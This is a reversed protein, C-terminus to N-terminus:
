RRASSGIRAAHRDEEGVLRYSVAEAVHIRTVQEEGALDAITRSVRLVRHYGRGSLGFREAVSGLLDRAEDTMGSTQLLVDGPADANVRIGPQGGYRAAQIARADAVRAAVVASPEGPRADSVEHIRVPPIEVRLDFRDMLPGSIKGLYEQGCVPVRACAREPQSMYGCRCPNAAAVLLFRCPYRVHATARSVLVEGTEIPQRLNDLVARAYEPFEDMFLVGNHALSIEGPEARRGGGVIASPSANHHPSRFPRIRSIRGNELAGQVSLIMSTELAEEADMPPLLSPLARALLSKGSGPPGVMLLHHRGAAAIELARRGKEQGHIGALDIRTDDAAAEPAACDLRGPQVPALISRGSFHNIADLLAAPAIVTAAEVWAAEVGSPEPVLLDMGDEAAALAAPLAGIVPVLSGDLALEGLALVEGVADRPVVEMAALLALAIPLDFHAGEKPLDAPALNITIRRAPLAIGLEGLAARVRDRAENVAKNPLGVITFSPLGASVACQVEVRQAEMGIFAVTHVRAIMVIREARHGDRTQSLNL